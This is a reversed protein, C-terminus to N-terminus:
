GGQSGPSGSALRASGLAAGSATRLPAGRAWWRVRAIAAAPPGYTASTVSGVTEEDALVEEGVEVGRDPRVALVAFPPHGLNRVKAVAEQGLYCGKEHDILDDLGAEHPLSAEGLDIPFRAAGREIRWAELAEPEIAAYGEPLAAVLEDMPRDSLLDEGPGLCSPAQTAASPVRPARGGPFALLSISATADRLRVRSSLVYPALLEAIARPQAPDQLMLLEANRVGVTVDARIRGTPSLLFSRTTTGPGIATLDATLLDGLWGLADSGSVVTKRWTTLDVFTGARLSAPGEAAHTRM